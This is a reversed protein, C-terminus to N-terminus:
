VADVVPLDDSVFPAGALFDRVRAALEELASRDLDLALWVTEEDRRFWTLQRKAFRRTDRKALRLAEEEDLQGTLMRAAHSYGLAKLPLEDLPLERELLDRTEAVLGTRWMEDLRSNIREYLRGRPRHCGLALTRYRPAASDHEDHLSSLTQGTLRHVELAREIRVWDNPHTRAAARPDIQALREHMAASGGAADREARLQTRIADDRGPGEVLGFRLARHYLGTGGAAIPAHGRATIRGIADDALAAFRAADLQMGPEVIDVCHFPVRTRQAATPKDTGVDLDRYVQMSDVNIIEGGIREALEVALGTKGSATPGVIAIISTESRRSAQSTSASM